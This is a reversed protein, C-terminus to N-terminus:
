GTVTAALERANGSMRIGASTAQRQLLAVGGEATLALLAVLVVGGFIQGTDFQAIGDVLYRGLGGFGFIAGLTATAVVQVAASRIGGLIAPLALPIEVRSLVQREGLGMARAAEVLDRDVSTIGAYANVLIPPAALLVMAIVTPYVKFGLQPDYAATIPLVIGIAALTPVARGLNALGIALGVARRTHGIWLGLPLVLLLAIAMSIASVAVHEVLRHPIGNAGSWHVPDALWAATLTLVDM